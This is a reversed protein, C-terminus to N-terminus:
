GGFPRGPSIRSEHVPALEDGMLKALACVDVARSNPSGRCLHHTAFWDKTLGTIVVPLNPEMYQSVFADYSLNLNDRRPVEAAADDHSSSSSVDDDDLMLLGLAEIRGDFFLPALASEDVGNGTINNYVHVTTPLAM